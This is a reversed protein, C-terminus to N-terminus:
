KAGLFLNSFFCFCFRYINCRHLIHEKAFYWQFKIKDSNSLYKLLWTWRYDLGVVKSESHKKGFSLHYLWVRVQRNKQKSATLISRPLLVIQRIFRHLTQMLVKQTCRKPQTKALLSKWRVRRSAVHRVSVKNTCCMANLIRRHKLHWKRFDVFEFWSLNFTGADQGAWLIQLYHLQRQKNMPIHLFKRQLMIDELNNRANFPTRSTLMKLPSNQKAVNNSQPFWGAPHRQLRHHWCHHCISDLPPTFLAALTSLFPFVQSMARLSTVNPSFEATNKKVLLTTSFTPKHWIQMVFRLAFNWFPWIQQRM